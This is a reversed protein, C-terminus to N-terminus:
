TPSLEQSVSVPTDGLNRHSWTTARNASLVEIAEAITTEM